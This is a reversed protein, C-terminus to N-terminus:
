AHGVQGYSLEAVRKCQNLIGQQIVLNATDLVETQNSDSVLSIMNGLSESLAEIVVGLAENKSLHQTYYEFMEVSYKTLEQTAYERAVDATSIDGSEETM